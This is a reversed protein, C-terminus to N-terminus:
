FMVHICHNQCVVGVLVGGKGDLRHLGSFMDEALHKRYLRQFLGHFQNFCHFFGSFDIGVAFVIAKHRCRILHALEIALSQDTLKLITFAFINVVAFGDPRFDGIALGIVPAVIHISGEVAGVGDARHDMDCAQARHFNGTKFPRFGFSFHPNAGFAAGKAHLQDLQFVAADEFADVTIQIHVGDPIGEVAGLAVHFRGTFDRLVAGEVTNVDVGVFVGASVIGCLFIGIQGGSCLVLLCFGKSM